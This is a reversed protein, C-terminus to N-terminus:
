RADSNVTIDKVNYNKLITLVDNLHEEASVTVWLVFGGKKEQEVIRKIHNKKIRRLLVSGAFAGVIAGLIGYFFDDRASGTNGLFLIALITSIFIPVALTFGLVWGFDDELFAREKPPHGSKQIIQPQLFPHGYEKILKGPPGQISIDHRAVSKELLRHIITELRKETSVIGSVKTTPSTDM